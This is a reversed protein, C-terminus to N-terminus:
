HAGRVLEPDATVTVREAGAARLASEVSHLNGAGYDILALAEAVLKLWRPHGQDVAGSRGEESRARSGSAARPGHRQLLGRLYSPQQRRLAARHSAHNGGGAIGVPVLARGTRYRARRDEGSQ